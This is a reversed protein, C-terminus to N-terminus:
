DAAPAVAASPVGYTRWDARVIAVHRRNRWVRGIIESRKAPQWGAREHVRARQVNRSLTARACPASAMATVALTTAVPRRAVAV